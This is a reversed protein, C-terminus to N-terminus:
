AAALNRANAAFDECQAALSVFHRAAAELESATLEDRRTSNFVRAWDLSALAPRLDAGFVDPVFCTGTLDCIVPFTGVPAVVHGNRVTETVHPTTM